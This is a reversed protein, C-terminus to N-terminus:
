RASDACTRTASGAARRRDAMARIDFYDESEGLMNGTFWNENGAVLQAGSRVEPSVAVVKPIERKIAKADAVM